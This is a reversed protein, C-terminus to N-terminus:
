ENPKPIQQTVALPCSLLILLVLIFNTIHVSSGANNTKKGKKKENAAATSCFLVGNKIQKLLFLPMKVSLWALLRADASSLRM